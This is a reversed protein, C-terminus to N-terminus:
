LLCFGGSGSVFHNDNDAHEHARSSLALTIHTNTHRNAVRYTNNPTQTHAGHTYALADFKRAFNRARRTYAFRLRVCVCVCITEIHTTRVSTAYISHSRTAPRPKLPSLSPIPFPPFNGHSIHSHNSDSSAHARCIPYHTGDDDYHSRNETSNLGNTEYVCSM